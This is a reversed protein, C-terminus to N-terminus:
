LQQEPSYQNNSISQTELCSTSLGSTRDPDISSPTSQLTIRYFIERVRTEEPRYAADRGLKFVETLLSFMLIKHHQSMM